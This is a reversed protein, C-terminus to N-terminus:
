YEWSLFSDKQTSIESETKMRQVPGMAVLLCIFFDSGSYAVVCRFIIFSFLVGNVFVRLQSFNM